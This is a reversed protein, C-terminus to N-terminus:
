VWGDGKWIQSLMNPYYFDCTTEGIEPTNVLWITSFGFEPAGLNAIGWFQRPKHVICHKGIGHRPNRSGRTVRAKKNGREKKRNTSTNNKKCDM